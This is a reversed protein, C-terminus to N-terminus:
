DQLPDQPSEIPAGLVTSVGITSSKGIRMTPTQVFLDYYTHAPKELDIIARLAARRRALDATGPLLAGVAFYHPRGGGVMTSKGVTSTKGIQFPEDRDTITIATSHAGTFAALAQQLGGLTGRQSYSPVIEALIRRREDPSWDDRLTLAVWGSLWELFEDPTREFADSAPGPTFYRHAGAMQADSNGSIGELIEELGPQDRDGVGTLVHEFALLFRGLFGSGEGSANERYISPLDDLYRSLRNEDIM